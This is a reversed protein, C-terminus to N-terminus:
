GWSAHSRLVQHFRREAGVVQPQFAPIRYTPGIAAGCAQEPLLVRAGLDM